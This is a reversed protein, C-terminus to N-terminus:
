LIFIVHMKMDNITHDPSNYHEGTTIGLEKRRIYEIHENMRETFTRYPEGVYQKGCKRFTILYIVNRTNCTYKKPGRYERGM